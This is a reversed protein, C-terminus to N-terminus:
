KSSALLSYIASDLFKGNFFFDEKFYAERVFNSRELLKISSQNHPNVNAEISHLKMTSFGFNIVATIAEHMIGKRQFDPHLAYGIEARYHAKKMNWFCVTGILTNSPKLTVAWTIGDTSKELKLLQEIFLLAEDKSKTPERDLFELVRKNSRLFLIEDVDSKEVQRLRLRETIIVPFPNFNLTLV